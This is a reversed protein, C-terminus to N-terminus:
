LRGDVCDQPLAGKIDFVVCETDRLVSLQEPKLEMFEDHAVALVIAQYKRTPISKLIELGYAEKAQAPDVHSDVIDIKAEFSEFERVIDVVRSNRIDACNEKFAVGLVLINSNRIKIDRHIMMKIIRDALFKGMSDNRKRGALIVEPKYGAREARYTLYYPDVGICHGGVLGPSFPLFNWKTGAADLVQKTDIGLHHFIVAFENVLAINVDRQTNEIVKAAEAVKISEARYTGATIISAYLADVFEAAAPNSGSTIKMINTLTHASDGPNIREPSYGVSFGENLKLGSFQEIIPVCVEETAGPFVTSEYIVTAGQKLNEGVIQSASKLAGLNPRNETDVPTPVTVIFVNCNRLEERDASLTLLPSTEVVLSDVEEDHDQSANLSKIRQRDIDFGLTQYKKGFEAALPLGVYGLGIIALSINKENM